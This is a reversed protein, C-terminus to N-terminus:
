QAAVAAATPPMLLLTDIAAKVVDVSSRQVLFTQGEAKSTQVWANNGSIKDVTNYGAKHETYFSQAGRVAFLTTAPDWSSRDNGQTCFASGRSLRQGSVSSGGM